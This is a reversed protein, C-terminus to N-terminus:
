RADGLRAAAARDLLWRANPRVALQAPLRVPDFPGELVKALVDAKSSGSAMVVVARAAEVIRPNLTLRPVHPEVHTPAPVAIVLPADERLADSDPFVSLIHGDPGVGLLVLDFIPLGEGDAPVTRRLEEAYREAAAAPDGAERLAADVPIPHINAAPLTVGPLEGAAIDTSSGGQGSEDTAVGIDLLAAFALGANSLPHDIPVYREDGWWLHVRDWDIRDRLAPEELRRYLPVASSGGTLAVHIEDRELEDAHLLEVVHHAAREAVADQDDLVEIQPRGGDTVSM